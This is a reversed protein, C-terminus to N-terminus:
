SQPLCTGSGLGWGLTSQGAAGPCQCKPRLEKRTAWVARLVPCPGLTKRLERPETAGGPSAGVRKGSIRERRKTVAQWAMHEWWSYGLVDEAM